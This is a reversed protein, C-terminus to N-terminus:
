GQGLAARAEAARHPRTARLGRAARPPNRVPKPSPRAFAVVRQLAELRERAEAVRREVASLIGNWDENSLITLYLLDRLTVRGAYLPIALARGAVLARRRV